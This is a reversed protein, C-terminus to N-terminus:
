KAGAKGSKGAKRRVVEDVYKIGKGKYPEPPRIKRIKAATQGVLEKNIGSVNIKTNADVTIAIGEPIAFKVLHSFGASVELVNGKVASKFGVGVMELGRNWGKIVGIVANNLLARTTGWMPMLEQKKLLVVLTEGEQKVEVAPNIPIVLKGKAGSIEVQNKELLVKVGEEIKVPLKGIRSM